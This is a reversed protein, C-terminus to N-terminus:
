ELPVLRINRYECPVGESQLGIFGSLEAVNTAENQKVGNVKITLNTGDLIVEYDNWEGVPKENSEHLKRTRRGQTREPDVTMPFQGINWIDGAHDGMIQAEISLPWVGGFFHEDQCRLILGNNGPKDPWRWQLTLVFNTFQGETRLYGVPKGSCHLVGGPRISWVDEKEVSEFIPPFHATWGDLNKGNFLEIPDPEDAVAVAAVLVLGLGVVGCRTAHLM